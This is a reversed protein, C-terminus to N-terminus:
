IQEVNQENLPKQGVYFYRNGWSDPRLRTALQSLRRVAYLIVARMNMEEGRPIKSPAPWAVESLRYEIEKLGLRSFLAKQGKSTALIVHEPSTHIVKSRRLLRSCRITITFLNSNAELPGQAILLGGPKILSLIYPMQEDIETLHEIVDGLHLVDALHATLLPSGPQVVPAGIRKETAQAVDSNVEVGMARWKLRKAEVLLGGERCGYDVFTGPLPQKRLWQIVRGPEGPENETPNESLAGKYATDYIRNVM